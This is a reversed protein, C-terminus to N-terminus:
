NQMLYIEELNKLKELGKTKTIKNNHLDIVRLATNNLDKIKM